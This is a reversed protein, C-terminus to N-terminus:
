IFGAVVGYGSTMNTLDLDQNGISNAIQGTTTGAAESVPYYSHISPIIGVPNAGAGANYLDSVQAASAAANALVIEQMYGRLGNTAVGDARAAGIVLSVDTETITNASITLSDVNVGDIYIEIDQNAGNQECTIVYHHADDFSATAGVWTSQIFQSNSSIGFRAGIGFNEFRVFTEPNSGIATGVGM